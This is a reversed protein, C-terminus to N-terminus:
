QGSFHTGRHPRVTTVTRHRRGARRRHVPRRADAQRPRRTHEARDAAGRAGRRELPVFAYGSNSGALEAVQQGNLYITADEDHFVRLQPNALAAAPLDVTRRLWIDTTKWETGVKAYRMDRAGFGGPGSAWASDDFSASMWDAAPATFTYRWTQPSSDSASIIPRVAPADEYMRRNAAVAAPSLKVVARDYTMIGNVEVEVDTTQTYIAAALGLGKEMRLQALLAVYADNLDGLSTFSRYGWNGRDLWTHNEIPLGLGGFEGLVAARVNELPPTAPGPYAHLDAVDGAGADTWGSANNVPRTTDFSKLWAM